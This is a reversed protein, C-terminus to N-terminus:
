YFPVASADWSVLLEDGPMGTISTADFSSAISHTFRHGANSM